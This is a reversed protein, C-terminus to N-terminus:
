ENQLEKRENLDRILTNYRHTKIENKSKKYTIYEIFQDLTNNGRGYLSHFEDHIEKSLVIGNNIDTRKEKCWNYGDLHHVSLAGGVQGSIQCTFNYKELVEDVWKIYEPYRRGIIRDRESLDPNWNPHNEGRNNKIYCDRCGNGQLLMNPTSYWEKGCDLCQVLIKDKTTTFNGLIKIKPNINNLDKVFEEHDRFKHKADCYSCGSGKLLLYPTKTFTKGCQRCQCKIKTHSNSYEDLIQINPLIGKLENMFSDTTFSINGACRPCGTGSLIASPTTEWVYNCEHCIFKIKKKGHIYKELPTITPSISHLRKLFENNTLTKAEILKRRSCQPCGEGQLLNNPSAEWEYNDVNCRCQIKTKNNIYDGLIEIDSNINKMENIFDETTKKANGSCKPCGTKGNLITNPSIYWKYQCINCQVFVKTRTNKYNSLIKLNPYNKNARLVFEENTLKRM